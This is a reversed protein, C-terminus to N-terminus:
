ESKKSERLTKAFEGNHPLGKLFDLIHSYTANFTHLKIFELHVKKDSVLISAFQHFNCIRDPYM